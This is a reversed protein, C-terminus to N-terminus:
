QNNTLIKAESMPIPEGNRFAVMFADKVTHRVEQCRDFAQQYSTGEGVFYKYLNGIKKETVKGRYLGFRSDNLQLRSSSACVQVAFTIGSGTGSGAVVPRVNEERSAREPTAVKEAAEPVAPLAAKEAKEADRTDDLLVTGVRGEVNSKYESFANFLARAIKKQGADSTVFKRDSANSLFGVETLVSPMATRWLVLYPAQRAGRDAIPTNQRYYKQVRQAFDMSQGQHVYQMLSFIIFSEASGPIYGEYKTTYDEELSVVDNERMAVDLNAQSEDMGMVYTSNGNAVASKLADVHISLFLDAEARNAINGRETLGVFVDKTRTYVVKVDPLNENIMTGLLKAIKLTIDKEYITGHVTGPDKGGHGADIVITRVAARDRPQGQGFASLVMGQLWLVPLLFFILKISVKMQLIVAIETKKDIKTGSLHRV